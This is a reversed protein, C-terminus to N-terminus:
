EQWIRTIAQNAEAPRIIGEHLIGLVEKIRLARSKSVKKLSLIKSLANAKTIQALFLNSTVEELPIM